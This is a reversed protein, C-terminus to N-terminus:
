GKVSRTRRWKRWIRLYACEMNRAFRAADMLPSAEMRERLGARLAILNPRDQALRTAISVFAEPTEAVLETLGLNGLISAGVRGVPRRHALSVVPVGMWLADLSTTHGNYPFTDLAVDIHHYTQLYERRSQRSVFIIREPKIDLSALSDLVRRRAVGQPALLYLHSSAVAKLVKSWATLVADNIKWLRNLSGFTIHGNQIAPLPNVPLGDILPDYCWATEPLRLTRETYCSDDRDVPDIYPDSVRYDM